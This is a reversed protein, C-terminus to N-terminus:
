RVQALTAQVAMKLEEPELLAIQGSLFLVTCRGEHVPEPEYVLVNTGPMNPRQGPIYVYQPANPEDCRFLRSSYGCYEVLQQQSGPFEENSIAYMQISQYITRMNTQCKLESARHTTNIMGTTYQEGADGVQQFIWRFGLILLGLFVLGVVLNIITGGRTGRVPRRVVSRRWAMADGKVLGQKTRGSMRRGALGLTLRWEGWPWPRSIKESVRPVALNKRYGGATTGEPLPSHFGIQLHM